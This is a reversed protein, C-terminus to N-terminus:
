QRSEFSIKNGEPDLGDVVRIGPAATRIDGLTVGRTTLSRRAEDIDDVQFVITPADQGERGAGGSHLALTCPGTDFTVWHEAGYEELGPPYLIELGLRDRYFTVLRQMDQAYIIVEILKGVLGM